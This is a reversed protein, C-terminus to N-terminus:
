QPSWAPAAPVLEDPLALCDRAEPALQVICLFATRPTAQALYVLSDGGPSWSPWVDLTVSESLPRVDSGDARVLFIDRTIAEDTGPKTYALLEGDPSWAAAYGAGLETLRGSEVEILFLQRLDPQDEPAGWFVLLKGDPSWRPNGEVGRREALRRLDEGNAAVLYLGQEGAAGEPSVIALTNGTPSWDPQTGPIEATDLLKSRELDFIRVRGGDTAEFFAIRRGDPSWSAAPGLPSASARESVTIARGTKFDYVRLLGPREQDQGGVIYAIREGDPSWRPFSIADTEDVLMRLGSGDPRVLYLGYSQEGVDSAAFAIVDNPAVGAPPAGSDDGCATALLAALVTALIFALYRAM